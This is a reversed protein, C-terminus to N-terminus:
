DLFGSDPNDWGYHQAIFSLLETMTRPIKKDFVIDANAITAADNEILHETKRKESYLFDGIVMSGVIGICQGKEVAERGESGAVETLAAELLIFLFLPPDSAIKAEFENQDDPPDVVVDSRERVSKLWAGIEESRVDRNEVLPSRSSLEEPM